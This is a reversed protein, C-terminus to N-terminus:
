RIVMLAVFPECGSETWTKVRLTCSVGGTVWAGVIVLAAVVVKVGPM